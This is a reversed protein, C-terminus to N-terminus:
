NLYRKLQSLILSVYLRKTVNWMRWDKFLTKYKEETLMDRGHNIRRQDLSIIVASDDIEKIADFIQYHITNTATITDDKALHTELTCTTTYRDNEVTATTAHEIRRQHVQSQSPGDKVGNRAEPPESSNSTRVDDM